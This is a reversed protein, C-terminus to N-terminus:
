SGHGARILADRFDPEMKLETAETLHGTDRFIAMGDRVLYCYREDCFHSAPDIIFVNGNAIEASLRENLKELVRNQRVEPTGELKIEDIAHGAQIQRTAWAIGVNMGPIPPPALLIVKRGQAILERILKVSQGITEDGDGWARGLIVTRIEPHGLLFDYVERNFDRCHLYPSADEGLSSMCGSMTAILGTIGLKQSANSLGTLYQNAFSDGWLMTTADKPQASAGYACFQEPADKTNLSFRFCERRPTTQAAQIAARAVYDPFREPYGKTSVVFATYALACLLVAITVRKLLTTSVSYRDRFPREIWRWSLYSLALIVLLLILKDLMPIHDGYMQMAYVWVPWHWLYLSYSMDGMLQIAPHAIVTNDQTKEAFYIFTAAFGVPMLAWMNPWATNGDLLAVSAMLAFLSIWFFAKAYRHQSPMLTACYAGAAFEWARATVYYFGSEPTRYAAWLAWGLSLSAAIALLTQIRIGKRVKFIAILILPLWFYFQGEVALSWTHLLPKTHSAADFYGQAGMFAYNSVFLLAALATRSYYLYDRPLVYHWGWLATAVVVVALAPFIRRVRAEFFRKLSFDGGVLQAYVKGFILYGSIVFFIDVGVFGGGFGAFEFHYAIVALVAFARLFQIDRRSSNQKAM